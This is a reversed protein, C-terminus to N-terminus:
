SFELTSLQKHGKQFTKLTLNERETNGGVDKEGVWGLNVSKIGSNGKIGKKFFTMPNPYPNCQM